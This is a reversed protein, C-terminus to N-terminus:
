GTLASVLTAVTVTNFVFAIVADATVTRRMARELVPPVPVGVAASAVGAQIRAPRRRWTGPRSTASRPRRGNWVSEPGANAAGM